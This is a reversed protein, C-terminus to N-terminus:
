KKSLKLWNRLGNLSNLLYFSWMILIIVSHPEGQATFIAWIAVYIADVIIWLFWQEMYAQVMLVMAIVQLVTVSSDKWPQAGGFAKLIFAVAVVSVVCISGWIIRQKLNLRRGEVLSEDASNKRKRWQYWGVFQMPLFYFANLAATGYLKSSFSIWAYLSINVLGFIYNSISGKASLVVCFVGSVAAIIGIVDAEGDLISSVISSVTIGAILIIDLLTISKYNFVKM